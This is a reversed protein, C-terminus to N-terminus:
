TTEKKHRTAFHDFLVAYFNRWDTQSRELMGLVPSAVPLDVWGDAQLARILADVDHDHFKM